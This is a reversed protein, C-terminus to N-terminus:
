ERGMAHFWMNGRQRRGSAYPLSNMAFISGGLNGGERGGSSVLLSGGGGGGGGGM